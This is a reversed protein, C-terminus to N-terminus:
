APSLTFGFLSRRRESNIPPTKRKDGENQADLLEQLCSYTVKECENWSKVSSYEVDCKAQTDLNQRSVGKRERKLSRNRSQQALFWPFCDHQDWHILVTHLARELNIRLSPLVYISMTLLIELCVFVPRCMLACRAGERSGRM